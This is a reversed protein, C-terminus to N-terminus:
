ERNYILDGPSKDLISKVSRNLVVFSILIIAIISVLTTYDFLNFYKEGSELSVSFLSLFGRFIYFEGIVGSVIISAVLAVLIYFYSILIYIKTLTLNKIGFAKFTGINRKIKDLHKRLLHSIFMCISLISFGILIFSLIITLRTIFNYNEMAEVRAMDIVLGYREKLFGSFDRIKNLSEFNVTLKEFQTYSNNYDLEYHFIPIFDYKKFIETNRIKNHLLKLFEDSPKPYFSIKITYGEQYTLSNEFIDFESFIDKKEINENYWTQLENLFSYAFEKNGQVFLLIEKTYIPNFANGKYPKRRQSNFYPTVAFKNLGPLENVIAILPLPVITDILKNNKKTTFSYDLFLIDYQYSYDDLFEKTVIFGIDKDSDFGRGKILNEKDLIKNILPDNTNITRGISQHDGGIGNRNIGIFPLILQNYGIVNNYSYEQKIISDSNLELLIEEIKDEKNLPIEINVFNVFPDNMKKGLYELSGNAFGIALFTFLLIGFLIWLNKFKNGMLEKGEKEIFLKTFDNNTEFNLFRDLWYIYNKKDEKM